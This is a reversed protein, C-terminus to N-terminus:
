ISLRKVEVVWVWWRGGWPYKKANIKNWLVAYAGRYSDAACRSDGACGPHTCPILTVGEAKADAESIDELKEVRRDTIELTIRSAWRPMFISPKWKAVPYGINSAQYIAAHQGLPAWTEKVWLRDGVEGFPCELPLDSVRPLLLGGFRKGLWKGDLPDSLSEGLPQPKVIRRTQTKEDRLLARVMEGKFLIPRERM